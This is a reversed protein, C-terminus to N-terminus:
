KNSNSFEKIAPFITKYLDDIPKSIILFKVIGLRKPIMAIKKMRVIDDAKGNFEESFQKRTL